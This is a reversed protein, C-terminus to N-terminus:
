AIRAVGEFRKWGFLQRLLLVEVGKLGRLFLLWLQLSAVYFNLLFHGTRTAELVIYTEDLGNYNHVHKDEINHSLIKEINTSLM